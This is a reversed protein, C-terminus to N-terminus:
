RVWASVDWGLTNGIIGITLDINVAAVGGFLFTMARGVGAQKQGAEGINKLEVVGRVMAIIGIFRVLTMIPALAGTSSGGSVYALAGVEFGTGYMSVAVLKIVEPMAAMFIAGVLSMLPKALSDKGNAYSTFQFMAQIAFMLAMLWCLAFVALEMSELSRALNAVMGSFDLGGGM